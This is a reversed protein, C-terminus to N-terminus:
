VQLFMGLGTNVIVGVLCALVDSAILKMMECIVLLSEMVQLLPMLCTLGELFNGVMCYCFGNSSYKHVFLSCFTKM